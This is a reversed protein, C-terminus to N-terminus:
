HNHRAFFDESLPVFSSLYAPRTYMARYIDMPLRNMCARAKHGIKFCRACRIADRCRSVSHDRQLCRFCKDSHSTSRNSKSHSFFHSRSYNRPPATSAPCLLADRYSKKYPPTFHRNSTYHEDLWTKDDAQFNNGLQPKPVACQGLVLSSNDKCFYTVM